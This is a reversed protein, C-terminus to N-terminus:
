GGIKSAIAKNIRLTQEYAEMEAGLALAEKAREQLLQCFAPIQEADLEITQQDETEYGQHIRVVDPWIEIQFASSKYM